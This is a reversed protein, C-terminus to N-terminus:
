MVSSDMVARPSSGATMTGATAAQRFRGANGSLAIVM